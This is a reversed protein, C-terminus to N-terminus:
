VTELYKFCMHTDLEVNPLPGVGSNLHVDNSIHGSCAQFFYGEIQLM